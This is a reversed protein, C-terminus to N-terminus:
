FKRGYGAYCLVGGLVLVAAGGVVPVAALHLISGGGIRRVLQPFVIRLAGGIALLWGFMTIFVRWNPTWVNHALVVMIGITMGFVGSLYILAYNTLYQEAMTAYLHGNFLLGAGIALLLPGILKALYRSALM